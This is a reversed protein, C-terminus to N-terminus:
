DDMQPKGTGGEGEGGGWIRFIYWPNLVRNTVKASHKNQSNTHLKQPPHPPTAVSHPM